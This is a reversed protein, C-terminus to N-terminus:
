ETKRKLFKKYKIKYKIYKKYIYSYVQIIELHDCTEMGFCPVCQKDRIPTGCAGGLKNENIQYQSKM